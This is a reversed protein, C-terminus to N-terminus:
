RLWSANGGEHRLQDHLDEMAKEDDAIQQKKTAIDENLKTIDSRSYQEQLAKQPDSYYQVQNLNLKQQLVDLERKHMNLKAQLDSMAKRFYEENHAEKAEAKPNAQATAKADPSEGESREEAKKEASKEAIGSATALGGTQGHSTLEDNTVIKSPKAARAKQARVQRALDGLSVNSTDPQQARSLVPLLCLAAGLLVYGKLCLKM